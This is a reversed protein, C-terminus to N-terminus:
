GRRYSLHIEVSQVTLPPRIRPDRKLLRVEVRHIGRGARDPSLRWVLWSNEAVDSPNDPDEAAVNRIEPKSLLNGDLRVEVRDNVSHNKLELQLEIKDLNGAQAEKRTDDYVGVQFGPGAETLTPYLKVPTEGHIRDHLDAGAWAGEKPESFPWGGVYRHLAAYVKDTRQLTEPAGITTLLPRRTRENAHWNFVYMGDAGREWYASAAARVMATNWQQQPLLSEHSGWFGSDFGPYFPIGSDKLLAQFAEVEIGYDTGAGGGAIVLDCLGEKVWAPLDYGIRGCSEMTTAVRVALHLPKGRERGVQDTMRRLARQLDTLTYRLRYADDSPLHFAHRQWDLEIGDWDALRCVETVHRLRHERVEPIAFNWSAAFWKPAQRPGLCWEPHDRRLQTLGQMRSGAMESVQLGRFHNDNMRISAYVQMGLEHGRDVVAQFPNEGRQIMARVGESHRMSGVRDYVRDVTDGVMEMSQSPWKAEHTGLCWFHAGVQTDEM